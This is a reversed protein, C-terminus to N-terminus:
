LRRLKRLVVAVLLFTATSVLVGLAIGSLFYTYGLDEVSKAVTVTKTVGSTPISTPQQTTSTYRHAGVGRPKLADVYFSALAAVRALTYVRQVVDEQVGTFELYLVLSVPTCNPLAESALTGVSKSLIEVTAAPDQIFMRVLTVYGYALASVGLAIREVPEEVVEALEVRSIVENFTDSPISVSGQFSLVYTYISDVLYELNVSIEALLGRNISCPTGASGASGALSLWLEATRARSSALALYYTVVDLSRHSKSANLHLLAEYARDASAIAADLEWISLTSRQTVVERISSLVASIRSSTNIRATSLFGEDQLAGLIYYRWLAYTLAQFYYSAASYYYGQSEMERARGLSSQLNGEVSALLEQIYARTSPPLSGLVSDRVADGLAVAVSVDSAIDRAWSEVYVGIVQDAAKALEEIPIARPPSYTGGTFVQLAEYVTAVPRVEVGLKRGHEVLDVVVPRVERMTIPGVRQTVVVYEVYSTQGYPVLFVRAGASAAAELKSKLGGVPGISGDPLVMGTMVVDEELPLRLLAAAFAVATAASASPGGVIPSLARISAYFDCSDFRVGAVRSAVQAAVRTSAQLDLQSLPLTEVYVRGSGPCSVAVRLRAVVGVYSGNALSTIAVIGVEREEYFVPCSLGWVQALYTLLLLAAALAVKRIYRGM